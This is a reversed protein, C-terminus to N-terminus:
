SKRAAEVFSSYYQSTFLPDPLDRFFLKVLGAVSNVDHYFNEPNTFDVKSSDSYQTNTEIVPFVWELKGNDFVAKMHQIHTASGSLRYIGEMDLGFLEVAQFCQYVLFPVATGDRAYLDELSVGFVPKLPPLSSKGMPPPGLM